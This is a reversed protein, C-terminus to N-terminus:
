IKRVLVASGASKACLVAARAASKKRPSRVVSKRLKVRHGRITSDLRALILLEADRTNFGIEVGGHDATGGFM